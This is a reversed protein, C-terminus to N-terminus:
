HAQAVTRTLERTGLDRVVGVDGVLHLHTVDSAAVVLIPETM